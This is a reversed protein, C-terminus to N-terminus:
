HPAFCRHVNRGMDMPRFAWHPAFCRHPSVVMPCFTWVHPSFDIFRIVSGHKDEVLVTFWCIASTICHLQHATLTLSGLEDTRLIPRYMHWGVTTIQVRNIVAQPAHIFSASAYIYPSVCSTRCASVKLVAHHVIHNILPTFSKFRTDMCITIVKFVQQSTAQSVNFYGCLV